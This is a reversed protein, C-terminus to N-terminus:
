KERVYVCIHRNSSESTIGRWKIWHPFWVLINTYHLSFHHTNGLPALHFPYYPVSNSSDSAKLENRLVQHSALESSGQLLAQTVPTIENALNMNRQLRNMPCGPFVPLWATFFSRRHPIFSVWIARPARPFTRGWARPQTLVVHGCVWLCGPEHDTRKQFGFFSCFCSTKEYSMQSYFRVKVSVLNNLM